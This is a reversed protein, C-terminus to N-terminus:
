CESTESWWERGKACQEHSWLWASGDAYVNHIAATTDIIFPKWDLDPDYESHM